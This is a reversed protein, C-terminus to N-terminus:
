RPPPAPRPGKARPSRTISRCTSITLEKPSWARGAAWNTFTAPSNVASMETVLSSMVILPLLMMPTIISAASHPQVIVMRAWPASASSAASARAVSTRRPNSSVHDLHAGQGADPYAGPHGDRRGPDHIGAEGVNRVAADLGRLDLSLQDAKVGRNVRHHQMQLLQSFPHPFPRAGDLRPDEIGLNEHCLIRIEEGRDLVQDDVVVEARFGGELELRQLHAHGPRSRPIESEPLSEGIERRHLGPDQAVQHPPRLLIQHRPGDRSRDDDHGLLNGGSQGHLEVPLVQHPHDAHLTGARRVRGDQRMGEADRRDHANPASEVPDGLTGHDHQVAPRSRHDDIGGLVLHELRSVEDGPALLELEGELPHEVLGRDGRIAAGDGELPVHVQRLLDVEGHPVARDAHAEQSGLKQHGPLRLQGGFILLGGVEPSDPRGESGMRHGDPGKVESPVLERGRELGGGFRIRGQPPTRHPDAQVPLLDEPGLEPRDEAGGPPAVEPDHNREDRAHVLHHLGSPNQPLLRPREGLLPDRRGFGHGEADHNFGRRRDEHGIVQGADAVEEADAGVVEGLVGQRHIAPISTECGAEGRVVGGHHALQGRDLRRSPDPLNRETDTALHCRIGERGDQQEAEPVPDQAHGGRGKEHELPDDAGDRDRDAPRRRQGRDIGRTGGRHFLDEGLGHGRIEVKGL